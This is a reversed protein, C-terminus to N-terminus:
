APIDFYKSGKGTITNTINQFHESLTGNHLMQSSSNQDEGPTNSEFLINLKTYFVAADNLKTIKDM